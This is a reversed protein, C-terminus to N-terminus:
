VGDLPQPSVAVTKFEGPQKGFVSLFMWGKCVYRATQGGMDLLLVNVLLLPRESPINTDLSWIREEDHGTTRSTISAFGRM